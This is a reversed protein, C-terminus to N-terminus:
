ESESELENSHDQGPENGGPHVHETTSPPIEGEPEPEPTPEPVVDPETADNGCGAALLVLVALAALTRHAPLNKM